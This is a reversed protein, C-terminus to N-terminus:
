PHATAGASNTSLSDKRWQTVKAGKDFVTQAYKHLDIEPNKTQTPRNRPRGIHRKSQQYWLTNTVSSFQSIHYVSEERNKKLITKAKRTGKGKWIFKLIINYRNFTKTPNSYSNHWIQTYTKPFNINAKNFRWIWSSDM